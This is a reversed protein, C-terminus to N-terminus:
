AQGEAVRALYEELGDPKGSMMTAVYAEREWWIVRLDWVCVSEGENAPRWASADRVFVKIPLENEHDWWCLIFYDGTKGQHLIVFGVEPRGKAAAPQPLTASVLKWGGEFRGRDFDADGYHISYGKLRYGAITEIGLFHLPRPKYPTYMM